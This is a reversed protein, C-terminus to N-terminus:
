HENRARLSDKGADAGDVTTRFKLMDFHRGDRGVRPQRFFVPGRSDVKISIALMVSSIAVLGITAGALLVRAQGRGLLADDWLTQGWDRDRRAPRRVGRLLAHGRASAAARERTGIAKLTRV